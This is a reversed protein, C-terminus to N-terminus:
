GEAVIREIRPWAEKGTERMLDYYDDNRWDMYGRQFSDRAKLQDYLRCVGPRADMWRWLNLEDFRVIYPAYAVDALSFSDCAFWTTRTLQEELDTLFKDFALVADRFQPADMGLELQQRQRERRRPDPIGAIYAEREDAPRALHQHRFAISGSLVGTHFHLGEDLRKTWLRMLARDRSRAPRLPPEPYKDDLYECIVTSEIIPVGDDVLTPVVGNPNLALYEPQHQHRLRLNFEHGIWPLDKEALLIRVKQACTSLDAHYLELAM